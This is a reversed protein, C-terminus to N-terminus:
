VKERNLLLLFQWLVVWLGWSIVWPLKRKRFYNEKFCFCQIQQVNRVNGEKNEDLKSSAEKEASEGKIPSETERQKGEKAEIQRFVFKWCMEITNTMNKALLHFSNITELCAPGEEPVTLFLRDGQVDEEALRGIFCYEKDTMPCVIKFPCFKQNEGGHPEWALLPAGQGAKFNGDIDLVKGTDCLLMNNAWRWTQSSSFDQEALVLKDSNEPNTM